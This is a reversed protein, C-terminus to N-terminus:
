SVTVWHPLVMQLPLNTINWRLMYIWLGWIAQKINKHYCTKLPINFASYNFFQPKIVFHM